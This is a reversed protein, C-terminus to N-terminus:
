HCCGNMTCFFAKLDREFEEVKPGQAIYRSHLVQLLPGDIEKAMFPWRLSFYSEAMPTDSTGKYGGYTGLQSGANTMM